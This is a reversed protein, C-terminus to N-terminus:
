FSFIRLQEFFFKKISIWRAQTELNRKGSELINQLAVGSTQFKKIPLMLVLKYDEAPAPM